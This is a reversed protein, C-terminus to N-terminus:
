MQTDPDQQLTNMLVNNEPSNLKEKHYNQYRKRRKIIYIILLIMWFLTIISVVGILHIVGEALIIEEDCRVGSFGKECNCFFAKEDVECTGRYCTDHMCIDQCTENRQVQHHRCICVKDGNEFKCASNTGCYCEQCTGNNDDYGELCGCVKRGNQFDCSHNTGCDCEECTGNNDAYNKQLCICVIKGNIENCHAIIEVELLCVMEGDIIECREDESCSCEKCTGNHEAYNEKCICVSSGNKFTCSHGDGCSCEECTGNNEEYGDKCICTKQQNVFECKANEGCDCDVCEENLKSKGPFCHCFKTTTSYECDIGDSCDCAECEEHWAGSDRPCVCTGSEIRKMCFQDKSCVCAECKEDISIYQNNCNCFMLGEMFHCSNSEGCNCRECTDGSLGFGKMCKCTGADFDCLGNYCKCDECHGNLVFKNGECECIKGYEFYACTISGAGCDCDSSRKMRGFSFPRDVNTSNFFNSLFGDNERLYSDAKNALSAITDMPDYSAVVNALYVLACLYMITKLTYNVFSCSKSYM